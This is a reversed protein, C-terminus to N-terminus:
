NLIEGENFRFSYFLGNEKLIAKFLEYSENSLSDDFVLIDARPPRINNSSGDFICYINNEDEVGHCFIRTTNEKIDQFVRQWMEDVREEGNVLYVYMKKNNNHIINM